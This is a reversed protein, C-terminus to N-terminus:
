QDVFRRKQEETTGVLDRVIEDLLYIEVRPNQRLKDEDTGIHVPENRGAVSIRIRKPNIAMVGTLYETTQRCREYALDWNDRLSSGSTIPRQSTHGRIEIKQPKGQIV